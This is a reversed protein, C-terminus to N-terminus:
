LPQNFCVRRVGMAIQEFKSNIRLAYQRTLSTNAKANTGAPFRKSGGKFRKYFQYHNLHYCFIPLAPVAAQPVGLILYFTFFL